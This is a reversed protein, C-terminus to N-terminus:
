PHRLTRTRGRSKASSHTRRGSGEIRSSIPGILAGVLLAALLTAVGAAQVLDIGGQAGVVISQVGSSVWTHVDSQILGGKPVIFTRVLPENTAYGAPLVIKLTYTGAKPFCFIYVGDTDTTTSGVLKNNQDYLKLVAGAVPTDSMTPDVVVGFIAPDKIGPIRATATLTASTAFGDHASFTYTGKLAKAADSDPVCTGKLSFTCHITVLVCKGAPVGSVTYDGVHLDPREVEWNAKGDTVDTLEAWNITGADTYVKGNGDGGNAISDDWIYVHVPMSGKTVFNAGLDFHVDTPDSATLYLVNYYFGGPNTSSIKYQLGTSTVCPTFVIRFQSVQYRSDSTDTLWSQMHWNGFDNDNSTSGSQIPVEHTGPVAPYTQQWGNQLTETVKYTGVGLDTFEYYGLGVSGSSDQTQYSEVWTWGGQGNSVYLNVTWGAVGVEKTDWFGDHDEDSWKYGSIKGLAFNGFWENKTASLTVDLGSVTTVSVQNTVTGGVYPATQMWHLYENSNESLTYTGPGLGTFAYHGDSPDTLATRTTGDPLTLTITWSKGTYAEGTEWIHDGNVDEFKYGTIKVNKFNKFTYTGYSHGSEVTGITMLNGAPDTLTYGGQTTESLSYSGPKKVTFVVTGQSNTGSGTKVSQADPGALNIEWGNLLDNSSADRKEVTITLWQFNYFDKGGVDTGSVVAFSSYGLV